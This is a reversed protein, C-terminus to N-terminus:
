LPEPMGIFYGQVMDIGISELADLIDQNEVFEAITTKNLSHAIHNISRVMALDVPDNAIDRVFTGDIKIIDVPLHKLYNFSSFGTGFDDLAFRIGLKRLEKIFLSAKDLHTVAATETIEIILRQAASPNKEAFSKIIKLITNDGISGGSLNVTLHDIPNEKSQDTLREIAQTIVWTDVQTMLGYREAVPIFNGPTTITKDKQQLRLLTEHMVITSDGLHRIPQFYLIFRNEELAAKIENVVTIEGLTSVKSEDEKSYIHNCNRGKQKAVYCAIDCQRLAEAPTRINQDIIICGISCTVEYKNGHWQFKFGKLAHCYSEAIEQLQNAKIDDLIVGFEDGGLRALIDGQRTRENFRRAMEILLEDGAAHGATDNIIKFQDLDIYLLAASHKGRSASNVTQKLQQEFVYRNKLGTLSDHQVLYEMQRKALRDGTVDRFVLVIGMINKYRDRIPAASDEIVYEDGNRSILATHNALGVIRGETLCHRVPHLAPQRTVENIINFVTEITQGAATDNKWGTLQEAIPNLYEVNGQADTTIVADGISHLTVIAKEREQELIKRNQELKRLINKHRNIESTLDIFQRTISYGIICRLVLWAKEEPSAPKLLFGQCQINSQKESAIHKWKLSIPIPARSRSCLRICDQLGTASNNLLDILPRNKLQEPSAEIFRSAKRNAALITGSIDFLILAEPLTDTLQLFDEINM